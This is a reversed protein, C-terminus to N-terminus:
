IPFSPRAPLPLPDSTEEPSLLNKLADALQHESYPKNLRRTVGLTQFEQVAADEMGGSTVLIPINPLIQRLSSVFRLGNMNPMQLDTIIAHLKAHHQAVQILGDAGDTATLPTFNMRGLILSAMKRVAPEDDVFLVLEGQGHFEVAVSAAPEAHSGASAAPLYVTFTSGKGLHSGVQVFGGHGKVIGMVTSLGLGTGKDPGKTTFFPDFIRDLIEAPIGAGTDSVRLALYTGPKADPVSSAFLADVKMGLLELRLTGGGPMADRANVCLNLLVQHVQSADGLVSPLESGCKVVIQIDKPFSGRMLNELEHALRGPKLSARVGEAGKAFSLLQRVMDAGRRASVEIMDVIKSENPNEMKLLEVAMMIPALTNNLDHAVGSALMGISELRQARLVLKEAELLRRYRNLRTITRVRARLESRHFPKTIFDDAGSEIGRLRSEQDDLSTIIIVPVDRLSNDARLRRCVDFGDMEPMMVDLLILDPPSEAALTLAEAGRAAELLVYDTTGLLELLTERNAAHDDVILIKPLIPNM